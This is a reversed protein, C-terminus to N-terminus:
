PLFDILIVYLKPLGLGKFAWPSSGNCSTDVPRFTESEWPTQYDEFGFDNLRGTMVELGLMSSPIPGASREKYNTTKTFLVHVVKVSFPQLNSVKFSCFM